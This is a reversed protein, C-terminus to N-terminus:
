VRGEIRERRANFTVETVRALGLYVREANLFLASREEGTATVIWRSETLKGIVHIRAGKRVHRVVEAAHREGWVTVDLWFGRDKRVADSGGQRYEDFFVRLEALRREENGVIVTTLAADNGVNGTGRFENSM